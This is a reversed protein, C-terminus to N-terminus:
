KNLSSEFSDIENRLKTLFCNYKVVNEFLKKLLMNSNEQMNNNVIKSDININVKCKEGCNKDGTSNINILFQTNM